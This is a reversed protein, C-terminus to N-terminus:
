ALAPDEALAALQELLPAAAVLEAADVPDMAALVEQMRSIWMRRILNGNHEALPTRHLHHSRGDNPNTTRSVLGRAVLSRVTASVNSSQLGLMRALDSVTIGPHDSLVRLVEIESQLIGVLGSEREGVRQLKWVLTRVSDALRDVDADSIRPDDPM